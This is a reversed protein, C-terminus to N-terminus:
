SWFVGSLVIPGGMGGDLKGSRVVMGVSGFSIDEREGKVTERVLPKRGMEGGGVSSGAGNWGRVERRTRMGMRVRSLLGPRRAVKVRPSATSRSSGSRVSSISRNLASRWVM